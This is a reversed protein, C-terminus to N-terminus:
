NYNLHNEVDFIPVVKYILVMNEQYEIGFRLADECLGSNKLSCTVDRVLSEVEMNAWYTVMFTAVLVNRTTTVPLFINGDEPDGRYAVM